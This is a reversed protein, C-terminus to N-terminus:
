EKKLLIVKELGEFHRDGTVIQADEQRATTLIISDIISWDRRLKKMMFDTEGAREALPSDLPIMQANTKVFDLNDLMDKHSISNEEIKKLHWRKLEALVATPTAARGTEIYTKAEAGMKSGVFYEVWAYTDIVYRYSM